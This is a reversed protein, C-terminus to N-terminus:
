NTPVPPTPTMRPFRPAYKDEIANRVDDVTAGSATLQMSDRAVDICVACGLGHPEWAAVSGDANRSQVFCHANSRHGASECGCFCPVFEAVDPRRGAFEYAENIQAAPRPAMNPIFPYPPTPAGPPPMVVEVPEYEVPEPEPAVADAALAADAADPAPEAVGSDATEAPTEAPGDSFLLFFALAAVVAVGGLLVWPPGSSPEPQPPAPTAQRSHKPGM